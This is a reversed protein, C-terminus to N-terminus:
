LVRIISATENGQLYSLYVFHNDEFEPDVEVDLLGGHGFYFVPPFAPSPM